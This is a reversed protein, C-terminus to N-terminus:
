LDWKSRQDREELREIVRIMRNAQMDVHSLKDGLKQVAQSLAHDHHNKHHQMTQVTYKIVRALVLSHGTQM